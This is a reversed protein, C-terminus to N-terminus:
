AGLSVTFIAVTPIPPIPAFLVTATILWLTTATQSTSKESTSLLRFRNWSAALRGGVGGAGAAGPCRGRHIEALM